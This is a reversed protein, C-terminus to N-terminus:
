GINEGLNFILIDGAFIFNITSQRRQNETTAGHVSANVPTLRRDPGSSCINIPLGLCWKGAGHVQCSRLVPASDVRQHKLIPPSTPDPSKSTKM